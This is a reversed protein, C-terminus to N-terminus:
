LSIKKRAVNFVSMFRDLNCQPTWILLHYHNAMLVFAQIRVPHKQNALVMARLCIKWVIERPLDFWEKNNSRITVHYPYLNTRILNKRPM